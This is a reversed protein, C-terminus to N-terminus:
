RWKDLTEFPQFPSERELQAKSLSHHRPLLAFHNVKIQADAERLTHTHAHRHTHTDTPTQPHTDCVRQRQRRGQREDEKGGDVRKWCRQRVHTTVELQHNRTDHVNSTERWLVSKGSMKLVKQVTRTKPIYGALKGKGPMTGKGSKKRRKNAKENAKRRVSHSHQPSSM